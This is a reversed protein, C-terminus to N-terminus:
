GLGVTKKFVVLVKDIVFSVARDVAARKLREFIPLSSSFESWVKEWDSKPIRVRVYSTSSNDQDRLEVWQFSPKGDKTEWILAEIKLNLNLDSRRRVRELFSRVEPGLALTIWWKRSEKAPIPYIPSWGESLFGSGVLAGIDLPSNSAYVMGKAWVVSASESSDNKVDIILTIHPIAGKESRAESFKGKLKLEAM